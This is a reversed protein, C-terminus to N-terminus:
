RKKVKKVVKSKGKELLEFRDITDAIERLSKSTCYVISHGNFGFCVKNDTNIFRVITGLTICVGSNFGNVVHHTANLQKIEITM